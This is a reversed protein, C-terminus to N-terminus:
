YLFGPFALEYKGTAFSPPRERIHREQHDQTPHTPAVQRRMTEARGEGVPTGLAGCERGLDPLHRQCMRDAVFDLRGVPAALQELLTTLQSLCPGPEASCRHDIGLDHRECGPTASSLPQAACSKFALVQGAMMGGRRQTVRGQSGSMMKSHSRRSYPCSHISSFTLCHFFRRM